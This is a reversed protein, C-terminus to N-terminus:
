RSISAQSSIGSPCVFKVYVPVLVYPCVILHLCSPFPVPGAALSYLISKHINVRNKVPHSIHCLVAIWRNTTVHEIAAEGRRPGKGGRRPKVEKRDPSVKLRYSYAPSSWLSSATMEYSNHRSSAPTKPRCCGRPPCLMEINWNM